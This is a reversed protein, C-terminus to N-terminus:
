LQCIFTTSDLAACFSFLHRLIAIVVQTFTSPWKVGSIWKKLIFIPCKVTHCSYIVGICSNVINAKRIYSHTWFEFHLFESGTNILGLGFTQKKKERRSDTSRNYSSNGMLLLENLPKHMHTHRELTLDPRVFLQVCGSGWNVWSEKPAIHHQNLLFNLSNLIGWAAHFM